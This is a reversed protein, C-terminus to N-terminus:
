WGTMVDLNLDITQQDDPAVVPAADFVLRSGTVEVKKASLTKRRRAEELRERAIREARAHETEEVTVNGFEFGGTDTNSVSAFRINVRGALVERKEAATLSAQAKALVYMALKIQDFKKLVELEELKFNKYPTNKFGPILIGHVFHGRDNLSFSTNIAVIAALVREEQQEFNLARLYSSMETGSIDSVLEAKLGRVYVKADWNITINPSQGARKALDSDIIFRLNEIFHKSNFSSFPKMLEEAEEDKSFDLAELQKYRKSAPNKKMRGTVLAREVVYWHNLVVAAIKEKLAAM